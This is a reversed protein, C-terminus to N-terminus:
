PEEDLLQLEDDEITKYAEVLKKGKKAM